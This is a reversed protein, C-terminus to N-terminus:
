SWIEQEWDDGPKISVIENEDESGPGTSYVVRVAWHRGKVARLQECAQRLSWHSGLFAWGAPSRREVIYRPPSHPHRIRTM